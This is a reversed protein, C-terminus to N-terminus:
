SCKPAISIEELKESAWYERRWSSIKKKERRQENENINEKNNNNRWKEDHIYLKSWTITKSKTAKSERKGAKEKQNMAVVLTETFEISIKPFHSNILPSSFMKAHSQVAWSVNFM